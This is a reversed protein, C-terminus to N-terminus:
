GHLISRGPRAPLLEEAIEGMINAGAVEDGRQEPIRVIDIFQCKRNSRKRMIQAVIDPVALADVWRRRKLKRLQCSLVALRDGIILIWVRVDAGLEGEVDILQSMMPQRGCRVELM